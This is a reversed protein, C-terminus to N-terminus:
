QLEKAPDLRGDAIMEMCLQVPGTVPKKGKEMDMLGKFDRYRLVSALETISLGAKLRIRRMTAGTMTAGEIGRSDASQWKRV